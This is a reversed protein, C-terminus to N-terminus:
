GREGVSMPKAVTGTAGLRDHDHQGEAEACAVRASGFLERWM